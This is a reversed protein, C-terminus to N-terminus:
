AKHAAADDHAFRIAAAAAAAATELAGLATAADGTALLLPKARSGARARAGNGGIVPVAGRARHALVAPDPWIVGLEHVGPRRGLGRLRPSEITSLESIEVM